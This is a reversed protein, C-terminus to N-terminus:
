FRGRLVTAALRWALLPDGRAVGPAYPDCGCRRLQRLSRDAVVAPLLAPLARRPVGRLRRAARLHAEAAAMLEAVAAALGARDRLGEASAAAVRHRAAIDAPIIPRWTLRRMPMARLLGALAHAIGVHHGAECAAPHRVGLAELALHVLASSTGEAYRELAALDAPPADDLDAARAKILADFHARAPRYEAIMTSLAEAVPHRRSPRGEYAADLMECWWELRIRGLTPESVSERVRAIEYNFAYLAFLANRHAAPAFLATQFRDRDHRRVLATVDSRTEAPASRQDPIPTKAHMRKEYRPITAM